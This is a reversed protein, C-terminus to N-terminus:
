RGLLTGLMAMGVTLLVLVAIAILGILIITLIGWVMFFTHLKAHALVLQPGSGRAAGQLATAAGLLTIAMWLGIGGIVLGPVNLIVISLLNLASGIIFLIAIFKMWGATAALGSAAREDFQATFGGAPVM